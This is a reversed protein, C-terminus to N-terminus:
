AAIWTRLGHTAASTGADSNTCTAIRPFGPSALAALAFLRKM